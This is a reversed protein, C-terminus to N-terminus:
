LLPISLDNYMLTLPTAKYTTHLLDDQSSVHQIALNVKLVLKSMSTVSKDYVSAIEPLLFIDFLLISVVLCSLLVKLFEQMTKCAKPDIGAIKRFTAEEFVKEYYTINM